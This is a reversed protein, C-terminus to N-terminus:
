YYNTINNFFISRGKRKYYFEYFFMLPFNSFISILSIEIISYFVINFFLILDGKESKLYQYRELDTPDYGNLCATQWFLYKKFDVDANEFIQVQVFDVKYLSDYKFSSNLLINKSTDPEIVVYNPEIILDYLPIFNSIFTFFFGVLFAGFINFWNSKIKKYIFFLFLYLILIILGSYEYDFFRHTHFRTIFTFKLLFALFFLAFYYKM